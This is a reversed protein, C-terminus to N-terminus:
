DKFYMERAIAVGESECGSLTEVSSDASLARSTFGIRRMLGEAERRQQRLKLFGLFGAIERGMFINRTVSQQEALAKDQYVTEIGSSRAKAASWHGVPEGRVFIAGTDPRYVGSILKILTSKGAGNDGVLAVIERDDVALNIGKLAFVKGFSKSVDRLEVIPGAM